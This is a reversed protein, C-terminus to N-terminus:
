LRNLFQVNLIPMIWLSSFHLLFLHLFYTPLVEKLLSFITQNEESSKLLKDNNGLWVKVSCALPYVFHISFCHLIAYFQLCCCCWPIATGPIETVINKTYAVNLLTRLGLNHASNPSSVKSKSITKNNNLVLLRWSLSNYYCRLM